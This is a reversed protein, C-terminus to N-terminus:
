FRLIGGLEVMRKILLKNKMIEGCVAPLEKWIGGVVIENKM